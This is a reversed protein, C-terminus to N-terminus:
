SPRRKGNTVEDLAALINALTLCRAIHDDRFTVDFHDEVEAMLELGSLSDTGAADILPQDLDIRSLDCNLKRSALDRLDIECPHCTM